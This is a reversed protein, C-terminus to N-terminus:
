VTITMDNLDGDLAVQECVKFLSFFKNESHKEQKVGNMLQKFFSDSYM